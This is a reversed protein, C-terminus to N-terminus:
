QPQPKRWRSQCGGIRGQHRMANVIEAGCLVAGNLNAGSLNVWEMDARSLIIGRLDANIFEGNTLSARNFDREGSAYRKLLEQPNM